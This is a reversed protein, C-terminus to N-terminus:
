GGQAKKKQYTGVLVGQGLIHGEMAKELEQKTPNALAGLPADLAYLKFFYRHRGIPPCPPYWGHQLGDNNGIHTGVPVTEETADEPLGNASPPIDYVVWHVFTRLPAKPDPADPDDVVLALSRTGGPVNSWHLAPSHGEGECTFRAPVEDGDSFVPSGLTITTQAATM